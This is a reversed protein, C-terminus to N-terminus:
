HLSTSVQGLFKFGADKAIQEAVEKGAPVHLVWTDAYKPRRDREFEDNHAESYRRFRSTEYTEQDVADIDARVNSLLVSGFLVALVIRALM